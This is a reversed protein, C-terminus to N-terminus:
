GGGTVHMADMQVTLLDLVIGGAGGGQPVERLQLRNTIAIRGLDVHLADLNYKAPTHPLVVYPNQILVDLKLASGHQQAEAYALKAAETMKSATNM